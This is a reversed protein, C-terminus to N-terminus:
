AKPEEDSKDSQYTRLASKLRNRKELYKEVKPDADADKKVGDLARTICRKILENMSLGTKTSTDQLAAYTPLDLTINLRPDTKAM